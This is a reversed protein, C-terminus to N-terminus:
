FYYRPHIVKKAPPPLLEIGYSISFEHNGKSFNSLRSLTYDYSYLVKLNKTIDFKLLALIADGTRYSLGFAMKDIFILSANIDFQLPAGKVYKMMFGPELVLDRSLDLFYGGIVCYNKLVVYTQNKAYDPITKKKNFLHYATGGIYFEQNQYYIGASVDPIFVSQKGVPISPDDTTLKALQDYNYSSNNGGAEIGFSLKGKGFGIHYSFIGNIALANTIAIKDQSLKLGLGISKTQIPAQFSLIETVPVGKIESVMARYKLSGVVWRSSGAYAPNVLMKDFMYQSFYVDQQGYLDLIAALFVTISIVISKFM